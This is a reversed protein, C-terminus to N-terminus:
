GRATARRAPSAPRPTAAPSCPRPSTSSWRGTGRSRRRSGGGSSRRATCARSRTSTRTRSSSSTAAPWPKRSGGCGRRGRVSPGHAGARRLRPLPRRVGCGPLGHPVGGASRHRSGPARSGAAAGGRYGLRGGARHPAGGRRPRGGHAPGLRVREPEDGGRRRQDRYGARHRGEVPSHPGEAVCPRAHVSQHRHRRRHAGHRDTDCGSAGRLPAPPASSPWRMLAEAPFVLDANRTFDGTMTEQTNVVVRPRGPGCRRGPTRARPSWPM